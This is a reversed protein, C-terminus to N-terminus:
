QKKLEDMLCSGVWDLMDQLEFEVIKYIGYKKLMEGGPFYKPSIGQVTTTKKLASALLLNYDFPLNKATTPYREVSLIIKALVVENDMSELQARLRGVKEAYEEYKSSIIGIAKAVEGAFPGLIGTTAKKIEDTVGRLEQIQAELEGVRAELGAVTASLGKKREELARMDGFKGLADFVEIPTGYVKAVKFLDTVAKVSFGLDYLLTEVMKKVPMLHALGAQVKKLETEAEIFQKKMEEIKSQVDELTGYSKVAETLGKVGGHKASLDVLNKLAPGAIGDKELRAVLDLSGQITQKESNLQQINDDLASITKERDEKEKALRELELELENVSEYAAVAKIFETPKKYAKAADMVAFLNETTWGLKGFTEVTSLAEKLKPISLGSAKTEKVTQVLVQLDVQVQSAEEILLSVDETTVGSSNLKDSTDNCSRVEELEIGSRVFRLMVDLLDQKSTSDEARIGRTILKVSSVSWGGDSFKSIEEVLYRRRKLEIMIARARNLEEPSRPKRQGLERLEKILEVDDTGKNSL